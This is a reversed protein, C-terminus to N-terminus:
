SYKKVLNIVTGIIAHDIVEAWPLQFIYRKTMTMM